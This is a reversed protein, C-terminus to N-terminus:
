ITLCLGMIHFPLKYHLHTIGLIKPFHQEYVDLAGYHVYRAVQKFTFAEIYNVGYKFKLECVM